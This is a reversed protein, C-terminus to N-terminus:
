LAELVGRFSSSILYGMLAMSAGILVILGSMLLVPIKAKTDEVLKDKYKKILGLTFLALFPLFLFIHEKTEMVIGHAWPTEGSKIVPKVDPGYTNVYYYGGVLWAAIILLIGILAVTKARKVRDPTPNLLEVFVLLFAFIGFEGLFAHIGILADAM